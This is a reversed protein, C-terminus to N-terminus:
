ANRTWHQGHFIAGQTCTCLFALALALDRKVSDDGNALYRLSLAKAVKTPDSGLWRSQTNLFFRLEDTMVPADPASNEWDFLWVEEGVSCLNRRTFDGHAWSVDVAHDAQNEIAKALPEVEPAKARFRGWWSLEQIQRKRRAINVLENRCRQPIPEWQAPIPRSEAPMTEMVLYRHSQFQGEVLVKPVRFSRIPQGALHRLAKAETELHHDNKTDLSVKAFALPTGEPSLLNVYFRARKSQGPFSVVAHANTTGLDQRAQRFWVDFPFNPYKPVPSSLERGVFRDLRATTALRIGVKFLWRPVSTEKYLDVGRRRLRRPVTPISLYDQGRFSFVLYSNGDM